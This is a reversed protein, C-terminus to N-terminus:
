KVLYALIDDARVQDLTISVSQVLGSTTTSKITIDEYTVQKPPDYLKMYDRYGTDSIIAYTIRQDTFRRRLDNMTQQSTTTTIGFLINSSDAQVPVIRLKYLEEKSLIDKYLQKNTPQSTDVYNMGLVRARRQTSQEEDTRASQSM